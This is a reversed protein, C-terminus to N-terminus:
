ATRELPIKIRFRAGSGPESEVTISGGHNKTIIYYCVSLGLGTGIGSSKTTYFPEFIRRQAAGEIGPGNDSVEICANGEDRGTRITISPKYKKEKKESMAQAANKLLNLIVQEIGTESCPVAPLKRDYKRVIEIKKFDYKKKLDYDSAAIELAQDIIRDLRVPVIGTEGKRSFQLMNHVIRAARRGAEQMGQLYSLVEREELYSRVLGLDTGLKKAADRNKKIKPDLRNLSGQIGQLMIGLPNNIEHAMGAALGGLSSMKENQIMMEQTIKKETLDNMIILSVDAVPVMRFEIWRMTGDRCRIESERPEVPSGSAHSGLVAKEWSDRVKKRYDADPYATNWWADMSPIEEASYGTILTFTRNIYTINNNSDVIAIPFPSFEVMLRFREESRRLSGQMELRVIIDGIYASIGELANRAAPSIEKLSHSAVNMCAIVTDRHKIPIVALAQLGELTFNEDFKVNMEPLLDYIPNGQMVVGAIPDKLSFHSNKRVFDDGLGKQCALDISGSEHNILYVGGADMKSVRIAADLSLSLAEELGEAAGLSRALDRLMANAEEAQKRASINRSVGLLGTPKGSEDRIFKMTVETWVISGNKHIQELEVTRSREQDVGPQGDRALEESINKMAFALSGPTMVDQIKLNLAEEPTYGMLYAGSPNSYNFTLSAIDLVWLNDSINDMLLRYKSESRRLEEEARKRASIDTATFIVGIEPSDPDIRTTSLVVDILEGNKRKWRTEVSSTGFADIQSQSEVIVRVYEEQGPYIIGSARGLMEEEPYGTMSCLGRNCWVVINESGTVMGIGIPAARLISGLKAESESLHEKARVLEGYQAEFEENTAELEEIIAQLRENGEELDQGKSRIDDEANKRATIDRVYEVIGALEGKEDLLPVSYLEFWGPLGDSLTRPIIDSELKRTKFSRQAPCQACREPSDHYAEHCRKGELPLAHDFWRKMVQNVKVIKFDPDLVTIGDQVSNFIAELFWENNQLLGEAKKQDTIDAAIGSVGSLVGRTYMPKGTVRLWISEGSKSVVRFEELRVVGGMAQRYLGAVKERDDPHMYELFANGLLEIESYGTLRSVQPSLYTFMGSMDLSFLIDNLSDIIDRYREESERLKREMSHKYLSSEINSFLDRENIPKNLYGYPMTDRAREVTANDANATLYIVPIDAMGRLKRVTEIGDMPGDLIIDMLILDPALEVAMQIAAKGSTVVDLATYGLRELSKSISMGIILEDEVILIRPKKM